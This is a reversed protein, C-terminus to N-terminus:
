EDLKFLSERCKALKEYGGEVDLNIWRLALKKFSYKSLLVNVWKHRSYNKFNFSLCNHLKLLLFVSCRESFILWAFQSYIKIIIRRRGSGVGCSEKISRCIFNIGWWHKLIFVLVQSFNYLLKKKEKTLLACCQNQWTKEKDFHTPYM